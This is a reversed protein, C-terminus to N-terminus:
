CEDGFRELAGAVFDSLTGGHYYASLTRVQKPGHVGVLMRWSGAHLVKFGVFDNLSRPREAV